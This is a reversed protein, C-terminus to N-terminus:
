MYENENLRNLKFSCGTDKLNKEKCELWFLVNLLTSQSQITGQKSFNRIFTWFIFNCNRVAHLRNGTASQKFFVYVRQLKLKLKQKLDVTQYFNSSWYSITIEELYIGSNSMRSRDVQVKCRPCFWIKQYSEKRRQTFQFTHLSSRTWDLFIRSSVIVWRM